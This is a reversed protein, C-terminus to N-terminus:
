PERGTASFLTEGPKLEALTIASINALSAAFSRLRMEEGRIEVILPQARQRGGTELPEIITLVDVLGHVSALEIILAPLSRDGQRAAADMHLRLMRRPSPDVASM